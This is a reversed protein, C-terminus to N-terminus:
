RLAGYRFDHLGKLFNLIKVSHKTMIQFRNVVWVGRIEGNLGGSREGAGTNKVFAFVSASGVCRRLYRCLVSALYGVCRRLGVCMWRVDLACGVCGSM